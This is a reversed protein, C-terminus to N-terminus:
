RKCVKGYGSYLWTYEMRSTFYRYRSLQGIVRKERINFQLAFRHDVFLLEVVLEGVFLVPWVKM